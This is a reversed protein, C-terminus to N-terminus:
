KPLKEVEYQDCVWQQYDYPPDDVYIPVTVEGITLHEYHWSAGVHRTEYHGKLCRPGCASAALALLLLVKV